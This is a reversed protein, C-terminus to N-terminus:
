KLIRVEVLETEKNIDVTTETYVSHKNNVPHHRQPLLHLYIALIGVAFLGIVAIIFLNIINKSSYM